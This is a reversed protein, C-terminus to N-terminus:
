ASVVSAELWAKKEANCRQVQCRFLGSGKIMLTTSIHQLLRVIHRIEVQQGCSMDFIVEEIRHGNPISRCASRWNEVLPSINPGEIGGNEELPTM